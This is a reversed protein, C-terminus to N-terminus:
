SFYEDWDVRVMKRPIFSELKTEDLSFLKARKIEIRNEWDHEFIEQYYQAIDENYILLSADRNFEVGSNSWNHSGLLIREGDVIIGKTHTNPMFKISDMRFGIAQLDNLMEMRDASSYPTRLLIKCDIAPNKTVDRLLGLLEDYAATINEGKRTIYQNQFYLSHKASKILEKAHEIYNDPTLIPQVKLPNDEAFSFEKPEFLRINDAKIEQFLEVETYVEPLFTSRFKKPVPKKGSEKYDYDIFKHFITALKENSVVLHWERNYNVTENPDATFDLAPQNSTQWNGSSLWFSKKDRVAVKTHYALKCIGAKGIWAKMNEFKNDPISKWDEITVHEHIDNIKTGKGLKSAKKGDYVLKLSKNDELLTRITGTIHPATFDYIAVQLHNEVGELFPKLTKWGGEPSVHCLITMAANVEELKINTPPKYGIVKSDAELTFVELESKELVLSELTSPELQSAFDSILSKNYYPQFRIKEKPSAEVVEIDYGQFEDPLKESKTLNNIMVKESVTVLIAPINTIEGEVYKYGPKASLFNSFNSHTAKFEKVTAVLDRLSRKDNKSFPRDLSEMILSNSNM